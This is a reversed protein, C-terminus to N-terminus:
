AHANWDADPLPADWDDVLYQVSGQMFGAKSRQAAPALVEAVVAAIKEFAAEDEMQEIASLVAQKKEEAIM